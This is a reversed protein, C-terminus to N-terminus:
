NQCYSYLYPEFLSLYYKKNQLETSLGTIEEHGKFVRIDIGNYLIGIVQKYKTLVIDVNKILEDVWSQQSIDHKEGKTELIIAPRSQVEPLYWGDPRDKIGKFGLQAFSTIQGTGQTVNKEDDDFGLVTKAFDRVEDETREM